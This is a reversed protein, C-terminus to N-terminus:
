NGNTCLEVSLQSYLSLSPPASSVRADKFKFIISCNVNPQLIDEFRGNGNGDHIGDVLFHRVRYVCIHM